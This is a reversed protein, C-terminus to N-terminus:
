TTLPKDRDKIKYDDALEEAFKGLLEDEDKVENVGIFYAFGCVIMAAILYGADFRCPSTSGALYGILCIFHVVIALFSSVALSFCAMQILTSRELTKVIYADQSKNIYCRALDYNKDYHPPDTKIADIHYAALYGFMGVFYGIAGYALFALTSITLHTIFQALDYNLMVHSLHFLLWLGSVIYAIDRLFFSDYVTEFLGKEGM